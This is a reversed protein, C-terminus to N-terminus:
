VNGCCDPITFPSSNHTLLPSSPNHYYWKTFHVHEHLSFLSSVDYARKSLLGAADDNLHSMNFREFDPKFTIKVYDGKKAESSTLEEVDPEEEDSMNNRWVQTFKLGESTDACEVTFKKSFINALKAGYGNRGGTTKKEDDDFNSGQYTNLQIPIYFFFIILFLDCINVISM